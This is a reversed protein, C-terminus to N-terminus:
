PKAFSRQPISLLPAQKAAEVHDRQVKDVIRVRRLAPRRRVKHLRHRCQALVM